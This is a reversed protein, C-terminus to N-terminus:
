LNLDKITIGADRALQRFIKVCQSPKMQDRMLEDIDLFFSILSAIPHIFGVLFGLIALTHSKKFEEKRQGLISFFCIIDSQEKVDLHDKWIRVIDISSFTKDLKPM